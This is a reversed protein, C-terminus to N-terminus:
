EGLIRSEGMVFDPSTLLVQPTALETASKM